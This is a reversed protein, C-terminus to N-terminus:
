EGEYYNNYSQSDNFDELAENILKQMSPKLYETFGDRWEKTFDNRAESDLPDKLFNLLSPLMKNAFLGNDPGTAESSSADDSMGILSALKNQDFDPVDEINLQFSKTDSCYKSYQFVLVSVYEKAKKDSFNDLTNLVSGQNNNRESNGLSFVQALTFLNM